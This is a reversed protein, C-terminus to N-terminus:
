FLYIFILISERLAYVSVWMICSRLVRWLFGFPRVASVFSSLRVSDVTRVISFVVFEFFRVFGVVNPCVSVFFPFSMTSVIFVRMEYGLSSLMRVNVLCSFLMAYMMFFGFFLMVALMLSRSLATFSPADPRMARVWFFLRSSMSAPLVFIFGGWIILSVRFGPFFLMIIIVKAGLFLVDSSAPSAM